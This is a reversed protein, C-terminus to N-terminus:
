GPRQAFMCRKTVNSINTFDIMQYIFPSGTERGLAGAETGAVNGVTAADPGSCV